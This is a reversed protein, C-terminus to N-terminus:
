WDRKMPPLNQNQLCNWRAILMPSDLWVNDPSALTSIRVKSASPDADIWRGGGLFALIHIGSKTIALDGPLM